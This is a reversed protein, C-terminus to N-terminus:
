SLTSEPIFTAAHKPKGEANKANRIHKMFHSGVSEAAMLDQHEQASVTPYHYIGGGRCDCDPGDVLKSQRKACNTAHFQVELGTEDHGISHLNSSDVPTRIM